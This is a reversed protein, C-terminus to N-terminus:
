VAIRRGAAGFPTMFEVTILITGATPVTEEWSPAIVCDMDATAGVSVATSSGAAVIMAGDMQHTEGITALEATTADACLGDADDVVETALGRSWTGIDYTAASSTTCGVIAQLSGRMAIAGRAITAEQGRMPYSTAAYTDVLSIAVVYGQIVFYNGRRAAEFFGANDSPHVGFGVRLGDPNAWVSNRAM